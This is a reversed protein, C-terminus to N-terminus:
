FSHFFELRCSNRNLRLRREQLIRCIKSARTSPFLQILSLRSLNDWNWCRLTRRGNEVKSFHYTRLIDVLNALAPLDNEM